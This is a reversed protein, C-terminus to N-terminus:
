APFCSSVSIDIPVVLPLPVLVPFVLAASVQDAVFVSVLMAALPVVVVPAVALVFVFVLDPHAAPILSPVPLLVFPVALLAAPVLSAVLLFVFAVALPAVATPDAAPVSVFVADVPLVSSSILLALVM